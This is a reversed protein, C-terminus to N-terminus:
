TVIENIEKSEMKPFSFMEKLWNKVQAQQELEEQTYDQQEM